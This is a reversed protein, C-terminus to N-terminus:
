TESVRLKKRKHVSPSPTNMMNLSLETLATHTLPQRSETHQQTLDFHNDGLRKRKPSTKSPTDQTSSYIKSPTDPTPSDTFDNLSSSLESLWAAVGLPRDESM